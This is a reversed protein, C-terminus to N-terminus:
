MKRIARRDKNMEKSVREIRSLTDNSKLPKVKSLRHNMSQKRSAVKGNSKKRSDKMTGSIHLIMFSKVNKYEKFRTSYPDDRTKGFDVEVDFSDMVWENLVKNKITEKPIDDDEFETNQAIWEYYRRKRTMDDISKSGYTPWMRCDKGCENDYFVQVPKCVHWRSTIKEFNKVKKLGDELEQMEDNSDVTDISKCEEVLLKLVDILADEKGEKDQRVMCKEMETKLWEDLDEEPSLEEHQPKPALPKDNDINDSMGQKSIKTEDESVLKTDDDLPEYRDHTHPQIPEFCPPLPLDSQTNVKLHYEYSLKRSEIHDFFNVDKNEYNSPFYSRTNKWAKGEMEAEYEIYETITM